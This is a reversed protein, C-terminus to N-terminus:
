KELQTHLVLRVRNHFPDLISASADDVEVPVGAAEVQKVLRDL